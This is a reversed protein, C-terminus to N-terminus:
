IESAQAQWGNGKNQDEKKTAQNNFGHTQNQWAELLTEWEWRALLITEEGLVRQWKRAIRNLDMLDYQSIVLVRPELSTPYIVVEIARGGPAPRARSIHLAKTLAASPSM